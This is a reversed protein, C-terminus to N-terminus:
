KLRYKKFGQNYRSATLIKPETTRKPNFGAGSALGRSFDLTLMQCSTNDTNLIITDGLIANNIGKNAQRPKWDM